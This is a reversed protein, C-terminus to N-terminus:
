HASIIGGPEIAPGVTNELTAGGELVKSSSLFYNQTLERIILGSPCKGLYLTPVVCVASIRGRLKFFPFDEFPFLVSSLYSKSQRLAM